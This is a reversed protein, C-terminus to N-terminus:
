PRRNAQPAEAPIECWDHRTVHFAGAWASLALACALLHTRDRRHFFAWIAYLLWAGDLVLCGAFIPQVFITVIFGDSFDPAREEMQIGSCLRGLIAICACLGAANVTVPFVTNRNILENM